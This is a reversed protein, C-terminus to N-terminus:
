FNYRAVFRVIDRHDAAGPTTRPPNDWDQGIYAALLNVGGAKVKYILEYDMLDTDNGQLNSKGASTGTMQAIIKGYGGTNYVGKIMYTDADLAIANQNAIMQTYLPTKVGTTNKIAVNVKNDNGDVSTYAAILKLGKIPSLGVKVGYATTDDLEATGLKSDPSVMGGQLGICLGLPLDKGAIKADAWFIDAGVASGPVLDPAAAGDIKKVAYYTGTLTTMPISKNQLTLMYAEGAVTTVGAESVVVLDNMTAMNAGFGNGTGKGVYAGVVLTDPIDSNVVLAADFTNKFVNWGESFAFPSLSKPLEQRGLKLTTNGLKKAIYLQAFYIDDNIGNSATKANVDQMTNSVLNKELGLTGLYNITSGFTFDNKLDANLNLQIGFNARATDKNFLDKAGTANTTAANYYLVAQGTTTFDIGKDAANAAGAITAVAVASLMLKKM